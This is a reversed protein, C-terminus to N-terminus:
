KTKFNASRTRGSPSDHSVHMQKKGRTLKNIIVIVRELKMKISSQKPRRNSKSLFNTLFPNNLKNQEGHIIIDIVFELKISENLTMLSLESQTMDKLM